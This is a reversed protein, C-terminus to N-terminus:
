ECAKIGKPPTSNIISNSSEAAITSSIRNQVDLPLNKFVDTFQLGGWAMDKFYQSGITTMNYGISSAFFSLETAIDNLFKTEAFIAHHSNNNHFPINNRILYSNFLKNLDCDNPYNAEFILYAHLMEHM